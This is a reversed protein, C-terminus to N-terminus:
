LYELVHYTALMIICLLAIANRKMERQKFIPQVDVTPAIAEDAAALKM